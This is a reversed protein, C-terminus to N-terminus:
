QGQSMLLTPNLSRPLTALSALDVDALLVSRHCICGLLRLVLRVENDPGLLYLVPSVPICDLFWSAWAFAVLIAAVDPVLHAYHNLFELMSSILKTASEFPQSASPFRVVEALGAPISAPVYTRGKHTITPATVFDRGDYAHLQLQEPHAPDIVSELKLDLFAAGFTVTPSTSCLSLPSRGPV